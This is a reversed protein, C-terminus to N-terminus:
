FLLSQKINKEHDNAWNNLENFGQLNAPIMSNCEYRPM